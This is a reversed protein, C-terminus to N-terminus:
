RASAKRPRRLRERDSLCSWRLLQRSVGETDPRMGRSARARPRPHSGSQPQGRGTQPVALDGPVQRHEPVPVARSRDRPVVPAHGAAAACTALRHDPGITRPREARTRPDAPGATGSRRQGANGPRTPAQASRRDRADADQGRGHRGARPACPGTRDAGARCHQQRAAATDGRHMHVRAQAACVLPTVYSDEIGGPAARHTGARGSGRGIRYGSPGNGGQSPARRGVTPQAYAHTDDTHTHQTDFQTSM